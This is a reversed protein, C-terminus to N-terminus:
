GPILGLLIKAAQDSPKGQGAGSLRTVAEKLGAIQAQREPGEQMLPLLARSLNEATCHQQLFEPQVARQVVLNAISVFPVKVLYGVIAATLANVRYGIVAPTQAVALEIAVTGSAALAARGAKFAAYKDAVRPLLHVPAAWQRSHQEVLDAVAPVTPLLVELDPTAAALRAVTDGFVPAM